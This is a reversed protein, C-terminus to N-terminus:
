MMKRQFPLFTRKIYFFPANSSSELLITSFAFCHFSYSCYTNLKSSSVIIKHKGPKLWYTECYYSYGSTCLLTDDMIMSDDIFIQYDVSDQIISLVPDEGISCQNEKLPEDQTLSSIYEFGNFFLMDIAVNGGRVFMTTLEVIVFFIITSLM